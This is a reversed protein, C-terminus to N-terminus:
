ESAPSTTRPAAAVARERSAARGRLWLVVRAALLLGLITAYIAPERTDAKVKWWFHIIAATAAVYILRHLMQWRRGGMKRIAWQTSTLALPLLLVFATFGATIFPRKAVDKLMADWDFFQDLVIWISFHLSAYFFAFLGLMRRFRILAHVGTIRRLPTVALTAMLFILTWEGTSLTIFEIPNAGLTGEYAKWALRAAPLLAALFVAVKIRVIPQALRSKM